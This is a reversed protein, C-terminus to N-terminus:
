KNSFRIEERWVSVRCSPQCIAVDMGDGSIARAISSSNVRARSSPSSSITKSGSVARAIMALRSFPEYVTTLCPRSTLPWSAKASAMIESFGLAADLSKAQELNRPFGDLIVGKNCDQASIRELVMKVTVDDPVLQGKEMYSKALIGLETGNSMAQRFLDGTAVHILGLEDAVTAAQTGKGAGPAGLFVIRM